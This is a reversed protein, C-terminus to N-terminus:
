SQLVARILDETSDKGDALAKGVKARAEKESYGLVILGAVADETSRPLLTVTPRTTPGVDFRAMAEKLELCMRDALRPGVGRVRRLGAADGALIAAVVEEPTYTSLIALCVTPGVGSVTMLKRALNREARSKFGLLTPDGDVVHLITFLTATTDAVLGRSTALPVKLDFGVGHARLVARAPQVEVVEGVIHDYM